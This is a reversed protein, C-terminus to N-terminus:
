CGEALFLGPCNVRTGQLRRDARVSYYLQQSKSGPRGERKGLANAEAPCDTKQVVLSIWSWPCLAKAVQYTEPM